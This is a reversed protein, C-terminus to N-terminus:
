EEQEKDITAVLVFLGVSAKESDIHSGLVTLFGIYEAIMPGPINKM